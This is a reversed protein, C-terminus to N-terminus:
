QIQEAANTEMDYTEITNTRIVNSLVVNEMDACKGVSKSKL